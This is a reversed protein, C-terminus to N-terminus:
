CTNKPSSRIVWPRSYLSSVALIISSSIKRMRCSCSARASRLASWAGGPARGRQRPGARALSWRRRRPRGCRGRSGRRRVDGLWARRRGASDLDGYRVAASSASELDPEPSSGPTVPRPSPRGCIPQRCRASSAPGSWGQRTPSSRSRCPMSTTSATCRPQPRTSSRSSPSKPARWCRPRAFSTAVPMARVGVLVRRRAVARRCRRLRRSRDACAGLVGAADPCRRRPAAAARCGIVLAVVLVAVAILVQM